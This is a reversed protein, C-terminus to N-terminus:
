ATPSFRGPGVQFPPQRTPCKPPHPGSLKPRDRCRPKSGTHPPHFCLRTPHETRSSVLHGSPHTAAQQRASPLAAPGAQPALGRREKRNSHYGARRPGAGRQQGPSPEAGRERPQCDERPGARCPATTVDCGPPHALEPIEPRLLRFHPHSAAAAGLPPPLFRLVLLPQTPVMAPIVVMSATFRLIWTRCCCASSASSLASRRCRSTSPSLRARSCTRLPRPAHPLAPAAAAPVGSPPGRKAASRREGPGASESIFNSGPPHTPSLRLQVQPPRPPFQTSPHAPKVKSPVSDRPAPSTTKRRREGLENM